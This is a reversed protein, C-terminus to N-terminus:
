DNMILNNFLKEIIQNSKRDNVPEINFYFKMGAENELVPVEKESLMFWEGDKRKSSFKNHLDKEIDGNCYDDLNNKFLKVQARSM